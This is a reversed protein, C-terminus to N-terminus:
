VVQINLAYMKVDPGYLLQWSLHAGNSVSQLLQVLLQRANRGTLRQQDKHRLFLEVPVTGVVVRVHVTRSIAACVAELTQLGTREKAPLAIVADLVSKLQTLRGSRDRISSPIVHIIKDVQEIRFEGAGGSAAYAALLRQVIPAPDPPFNTQGADYEFSLTGGRPILVRPAEGPRFKDLDKRVKETVDEIDGTYAYPPDEYTIIWGQTAELTTIAKAVPRPDEVSVRVTKDGQVERGRALFTSVILIVFVAFCVLPLRLNQQKYDNSLSHNQQMGWVEEFHRRRNMRNIGFKVGNYDIM